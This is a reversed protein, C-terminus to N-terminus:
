GTTVFKAVRHIRGGAAPGTPGATEASEGPNIFSDRPWLQGPNEARDPNLVADHGRVHASAYGDGVQTPRASDPGRRAPVRSANTSMARAAMKDVQRQPIVERHPLFPVSPADARQPVKSGALELEEEPALAALAPAAGIHVEVGQNGAKALRHRQLGDKLAGAAM